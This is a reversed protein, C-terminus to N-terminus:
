ASETNPKGAIESRKSVHTKILSAVTTVALVGGIVALSTGTSIEWVPLGEGGNIFPLENDHLAELILKLGIFGLLVSLGIPLYVLRDLLGGILFYLQRLGMLAFANAAFVLYPEKTLGFIAPISDLAFLLDTTGIAIMVILMPTVMRRGGRRVFSKAGDYSETVPLIRRSIRIMLNEKFEEDEHSQGQSRAMQVATYILFAGFLYFVASFQSIVVAGVGIFVGRMILALVVGILLVRHQHIKPVAFTTMIIVFVFLNDVSLSYETLYGAIFEGAPASGAFWWLGAAFALACLVYFVVWRAAEGVKVAHPHSDVIFLDLALLAALGGLTAIWLWLPVIM